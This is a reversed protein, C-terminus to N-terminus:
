NISKINIYKNDLNNDKLKNNKNYLNNKKKVINLVVKNFLNNNNIMHIKSIKGDLILFSVIIQLAYEKIINLVIIISIKKQQLVIM